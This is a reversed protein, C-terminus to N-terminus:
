FYKLKLGVVPCAILVVTIVKAEGVGRVPQPKANPSTSASDIPTLAVSAFPAATEADSRPKWDENLRQLMGEGFGDVHLPTTVYSAGVQIGPEFLPTRWPLVFSVTPADPQNMGSTAIRVNVMVFVFREPMGVAVRQIAEFRRTIAPVIVCGSVGGSGVVVVVSAGVVVLEEVVVEEVEDDVEEVVLVVMAGVVVVVTSGVGLGSGTGSATISTMSEVPVTTASVVVSEFPSKEKGAIAGPM